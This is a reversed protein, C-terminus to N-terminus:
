LGYNGWLWSLYCVAYLYSLKAAFILIGHNQNTALDNKNFYMPVYLCWSNWVWYRVLMRIYTIKLVWTIDHYWTLQNKAVYSKMEMAMWSSHSSRDPQPPNIRPPFFSWGPSFLMYLVCVCIYIYMYINIIYVVYLCCIFCMYLKRVCVCACLAIYIYNHKYHIYIYICIYKCARTYIYM